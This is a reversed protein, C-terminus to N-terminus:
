LNARAEILDQLEKELDVIASRNDASAGITSPAQIIELERRVRAIAESLEGYLEQKTESM